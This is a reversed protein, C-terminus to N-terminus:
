ASEQIWRWGQGAIAIELADERREVECESIRLRGEIVAPEDAPRAPRDEPLPVFAGRLAECARAEAVDMVLARIARDQVATRTPASPPPLTPEPEPVDGRASAIVCALVWAPCALRTRMPAGRDSAYA